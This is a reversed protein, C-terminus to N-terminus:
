VWGFLACPSSQALEDRVRLTYPEAAPPLTRVPAARRFSPLMRSSSELVPIMPCRHPFSDGCGKFAVQDASGPPPGLLGAIVHKRSLKRSVVARPDQRRIAGLRITDTMCSPGTQSSLFLPTHCVIVSSCANRNSLSACHPARFTVAPHPSMTDAAIPHCSMELMVFIIRSAGESVIKVTGLSPVSPRKFLPAEGPRGLSKVRGHKRHAESLYIV